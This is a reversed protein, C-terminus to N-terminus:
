GRIREQGPCELDSSEVAVSEPKHESRHPWHAMALDKLHHYDIKGSGLLPMSEVVRIKRPVAVEPYGLGRAAASLQDRSLDSDTTFLIISEGRGEDLVCTAAHDAEISVNRALVEAVELSVMEGAVKAFRKLRGQLSLYGDTDIDVIDGTNYWGIGAASHPPVLIGPQEHYYYGSMLNPGHVHLEGGSEIGEVPILKTDIGQMLRGVTGPRNEGPLNCSLVPATETAGYGELIEIGFKDQWTNRTLDTLREAGAVVYNLSALDDPTANRAYNMLFTSTGLLITAKKEAILKPIEKFHLPSPYFYIRAGTILGLLTGATLGFSHFIPLCNFVLHDQSFPALERFQAVNSLLARHSLVVGKPKGETGSTFLVVAPDEPNGPPLASEPFWLAYGMLWAKDALSFQERLDELFILQGSLQAAQAELGAKQLFARSTFIRRARATHCASEMGEAGATYNLMCPVRGFASLGIMLAVTAAMNPLLVGVHEGPETTRSALRGLALTMKVLDGYSYKGPKLDEWQGPSHRGYRRMASVLATFLTGGAEPLFVTAPTETM